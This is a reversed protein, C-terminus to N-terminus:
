AKGVVDDPKLAKEDAWDKVFVLICPWSYSRVESNGLTRPPRDKAQPTIHERTPWPDNKRILYYGVATAIVNLKRMLEYHNRERAVLLDGLSLSSFEKQPNYLDFVAAPRRSM